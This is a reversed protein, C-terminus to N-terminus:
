PKVVEVNRVVADGMIIVKHKPVEMVVSELRDFKKKLEDSSIKGQVFLDRQEEIYGKIDIAVIKQAFWRDYAALSAMCTVVSVILCLILINGTSWGDSKDKETKKGTAVVEPEKEDTKCEVPQDEKAEM